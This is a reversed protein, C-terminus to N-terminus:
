CLMCSYMILIGCYIHYIAISYVTFFASVIIVWSNKEGLVNKPAKRQEDLGFSNYFSVSRQYVDMFKMLNFEPVLKGNLREENYKKYLDRRENEM